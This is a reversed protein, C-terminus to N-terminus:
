TERARTRLVLHNKHGERRYDLHDMMKRVLHIGWGGVPREVLPGDVDPEPAELPNFPRGDDEVELEVHPDQWSMRVSIEHESRDDYGYSIVNTIIEELVLNIRFLLEAPLGHHAAFDTVIQSLRSVEALDNRLRVSATTQEPTKPGMSGLVLLTM